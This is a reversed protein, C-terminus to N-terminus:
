ELDQEKKNEIVLAIVGVGVILFQQFIQRAERRRRHMVNKNFM